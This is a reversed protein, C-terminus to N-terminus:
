SATVLLREWLKWFQGTTGFPIDTECVWGASQGGGGHAWFVRRITCTRGRIQRYECESTVLAKEGTKFKPESKM